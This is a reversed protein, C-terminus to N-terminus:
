FGESCFHLSFVKYIGEPGSDQYMKIIKFCVSRGRLYGKYIDASRSNAKAYIGARGIDMPSFKFSDPYLGSKRSLMVIAACISMRSHIDLQSYDLLQFFLPLISDALASNPKILWVTQLADLLSQVAKESQSYIKEYNDRLVSMLSDCAQVVRLGITTHTYVKSIITDFSASLSPRSPDDDLRVEASPARSTIRSPRM